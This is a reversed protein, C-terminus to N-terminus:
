HIQSFAKKLKDILNTFDSKRAGIGANLTMYPVPYNDHCSGFEGPYVVRPGTTRLNYLMGGIKRPIGNLTMAIAIPNNVKLVRQDLEDALEKVNKELFKRNEAQQAMLKKYGDMGITLIAVLFQVLPQASARGAYVKGLQLIKDPSPSCAIAGGVPTLFNKDTSQVIYDVRGADIAGRIMKVYMESQIGYSNNIIHPIDLEECLEAIKKINDSERPPFFATTSLIAATKENVHDQIFELPVKVADDDLTSKTIIPKFGVFRVGKLPSKHDIRPIIVENRKWPNELTEKELQQHITALCCAITMGTAMPFVISAKVNTLGIQKFFSTALRASLLNLISSGAAKPQVASIDGSRGI